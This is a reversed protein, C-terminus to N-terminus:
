GHELSAKLNFICLVDNIPLRSIVILLKLFAQLVWHESTFPRCMRVYMGSADYTRLVQLMMCAYISLLVSADYTDAYRTCRGVIHQSTLSLIPM